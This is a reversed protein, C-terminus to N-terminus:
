TGVAPLRQAASRLNMSKSSLWTSRVPAALAPRRTPLSATPGSPRDRCADQAGGGRDDVEQAPIAQGLPSASAVARIAPIMPALRM